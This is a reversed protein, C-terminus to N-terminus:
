RTETEVLECGHETEKVDPMKTCPVRILPNALKSNLKWVRGTKHDVLYATADTSGAETQSGGSGAAAIVVDYRRAEGHLYIALLLVLSGVLFAVASGTRRVSSENM